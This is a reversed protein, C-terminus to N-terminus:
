EQAGTAIIWVALSGTDPATDVPTIPFPSRTNAEGPSRPTFYGVNVTVSGDATSAVVRSVGNPTEVPNTSFLLQGSDDRSLTGSYEGNLSTAQVNWRELGALSSDIYGEDGAVRTVVGLLGNGAPRNDRAVVLDGVQPSTGDGDTTVAGTGDLEGSVYGPAGVAGGLLDVGPTEDPLAVWSNWPGSGALGIFGILGDVAAPLDGSDRMDADVMSSRVEGADIGPALLVYGLSGALEHPHDSPMADAVFGVSRVHEAASVTVVSRLILGRQPLASNSLDQATSLVGVVNGNNTQSVLMVVTTGAGTM